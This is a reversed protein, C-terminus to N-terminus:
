LVQGSDTVTEMSTRVRFEVLKVSNIFCHLVGPIAQCQHGFTLRKLAVGCQCVQLFGLFLLFELSIRVSSYDCSHLTFVVEDYNIINLYNTVWFITKANSKIERPIYLQGM